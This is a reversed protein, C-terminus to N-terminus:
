FEPLHASDKLVSAIGSADVTISSSSGPDNDGGFRRDSHEYQVLADLLCGRTCDPWLTDTFFLESYAANWLMFNSVRRAKGTRIVLDPDPLDPRTMYSRFMSPTLQDAVLEGNQAAQIIRKGADVIDQQGGYNYAVTIYFRPSDGANLKTSEEVRLVTERFSEPVKPDDLNGIHQLVSKNRLTEDLIYNLIEEFYLFILAVEEQSRKSLNETSVGYLTCYKVGIDRLFRVADVSRQIGEKHGEWSPLGQDVAWRRNGDPVIAVHQPIKTLKAKL